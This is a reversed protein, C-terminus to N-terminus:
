RQIIMKKTLTYTNDIQLQCFYIGVPLHSTNFTTINEGEFHNAKDIINITRGSANLLSLNVTAPRALDFQITAAVDVPNPFVKFETVVSNYPSAGINLNIDEIIEIHMNEPIESIGQVLGSPWEVKISDITGDPGLGFHANHNSQGLVGTQGSIDRVQWVEVGNITAKVWVKAGIATTNSIVGVCHINIWNNSNGNNLYPIHNNNDTRTFLIDMDGDKDWDAASCGFAGHNAFVEDNQRTFTGDANNLFLSNSSFANAILLDLDGDNDYDEWSSGISFFDESTLEGANVSTFTNDGNNQYLKNTDINAVFLDQFGDNNYDGWSNGVSLNNEEAIAGDSLLTFTGDTNNLYLRNTSEEISPGTNAIHLDQFGDNNIDAWVCNVTGSSDQTILNTSDRMFSGDGNNIYLYNDAYGVNGGAVVYLDLDGDNEIDVWSCGQYDSTDSLFPEELIQSFSGDGNNHYLKGGVGAPSATYLDLFGDNDYDGFTGAIGDGNEIVDGTTIKTFTGDGNNHYLQRNTAFLDPYGDNDFDGWASGLALSDNYIEGTNVITFNQSQLNSSFLTVLSLLLISTRTKM